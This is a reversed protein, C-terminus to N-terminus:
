HLIFAWWLLYRHVTVSIRSSPLRLWPHCLVTEAHQSWTIYKIIFIIFLIVNTFVNFTSHKSCNWSFYIIYLIYLIFVCYKRINGLDRFMLIYEFTTKLHSANRRTRSVGMNSYLEPVHLDLSFNKTINGLGELLHWFQQM